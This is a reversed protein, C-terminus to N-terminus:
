APIMGETIMFATNGTFHATVEAQNMTFPCVLVDDVHGTFNGYTQDTGVVYPCHGLAVLGTEPTSTVLAGNLYLRVLAGDYTMCVQNWGATPSNVPTSVTATSIPARFAIKSLFVDTPQTAMIVSFDTMSPNNNNSFIGASTACSFPNSAPGAECRFQLCWSGTKQFDMTKLGPIELRGNNVFFSGAGHASVSTDLSGTGFLYTLFKEVSHDELDTDFPMWLICQHDAPLSPTVEFVDCRCAILDFTTGPACQMEFSIVNAPDTTDFILFKEPQGAVAAHMVGFSDTCVTGNNTPPAITTPIPTPLVCVDTCTPDFACSCTAADFRTDPPCCFPNSAGNSCVFFQSCIGPTGYCGAAAVTDNRCLDFCPIPGEPLCQLVEDNWFTGPPCNQLIGYAFTDNFFFCHFFTHCDAPNPYFDKQNRRDVCSM